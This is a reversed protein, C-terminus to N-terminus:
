IFICLSSLIIVNKFNANTDLFNSNLSQSNRLHIKNFGSSHAMEKSKFQTELSSKLQNQELFENIKFSYIINKENLYLTQFTISYYLSYGLLFASLFYGGKGGYFLSKIYWCVDIM